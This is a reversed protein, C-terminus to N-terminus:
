GKVGKAIEDCRSLADRAEDVAGVWIVPRSGWTGYKSINNLTENQTRIIQLLAPLSNRSKTILKATNRAECRGSGTDNHYVSVRGAVQGNGDKFDVWESGYGDEDCWIADGDDEWPEPAAEKNLEELEKLLTETPTM